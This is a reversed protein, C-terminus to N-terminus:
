RVMKSTLFIPRNFICAKTTWSQIAWLHCKIWREMWLEIKTLHKEYTWGLIEIIFEWRGPLSVYLLIQIFLNMSEPLCSSNRCYYRFSYIQEKQCVHSIKGKILKQDIKTERTNLHGHTINSCWGQLTQWLWWAQRCPDLCEGIPLIIM